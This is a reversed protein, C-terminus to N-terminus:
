GRGRGRGRGGAAREHSREQAVARAGEDVQRNLRLAGGPRSWAEASGVTKWMKQTAPTHPHPTARALVGNLVRLQFGHDLPKQIKGKHLNVQGEEVSADMENTDADRAVTFLTGSVGLIVSATEVEYKAPKNAKNVYSWIRGKVLAFSYANAQGAAKIELTTNEGVRIVHEGPLSLLVAANAGTQVASDAAVRDGKNLATWKEPNTSVRRQAKGIVDAATAYAPPTQPRAPAPAIALLLVVFALRQARM